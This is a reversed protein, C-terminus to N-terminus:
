RATMRSLGKILADRKAEFDDDDQWKMVRALVDDVSHQKAKIESIKEAMALFDNLADQEQESEFDGKHKELYPKLVEVIRGLQRGYSYDRGIRQETQPGSSGTINYNVLGVQGVIEGWTRIWQTVDGSLPWRNGQLLAIQWALWADGLDAFTKHSHKSFDQQTTATAM